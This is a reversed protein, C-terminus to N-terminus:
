VGLQKAVHSLSFGLHRLQKAQLAIRQYPEVTELLAAEFQLQTM